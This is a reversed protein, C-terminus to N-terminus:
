THYASYCNCYKICDVDHVADIGFCLVQLVRSALEDM